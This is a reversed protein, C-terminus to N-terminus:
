CEQRDAEAVEQSYGLGNKDTQKLSKKVAEWLSDRLELGLCEQRSTEAVEQSYSSTNRHTQKLWGPYYGSTSRHTQKLWRSVTAM